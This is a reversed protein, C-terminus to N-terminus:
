PMIGRARTQIFAHTGLPRRLTFIKPLYNDGLSLYGPVAVLLAVSILASMLGIILKKVRRESKKMMEGRVYFFLIQGNFALLMTGWGQFWKISPPKSYYEVKYDPKQSYAAIFQPSQIM